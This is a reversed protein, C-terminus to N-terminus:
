DDPNEDLNALRELAEVTNLEISAAPRMSGDSSTLDIKQRSPERWGLRAKCWFFLCTNDGDIAKQYLRKVVEASAHEHGRTLIAGFKHRLTTLPIGVMSAIVKYPVGHRALEGVKDALDPTVEIPPKGGRRKVPPKDSDM